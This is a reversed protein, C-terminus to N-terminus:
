QLLLFRVFILSVGPPLFPHPGQWSCGPVCTTQEPQKRGSRVQYVSYRQPLVLLAGMSLTLQRVRQRMIGASRTFQLSVGDAQQNIACYRSYFWGSVTLRHSQSGASLVCGPQGGYKDEEDEKIVLVNDRRYDFSQSM